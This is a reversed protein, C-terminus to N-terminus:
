VTLGKVAIGRSLNVTPRGPAIAHRLLVIYTKEDAEMLKTWLAEEASAIAPVDAKQSHMASSESIWGGELKAPLSEPASSM